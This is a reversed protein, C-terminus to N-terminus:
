ELINQDLEKEADELSILNGSSIDMESSFARKVLEVMQDDGQLQDFLREVQLFRLEDMNEISKIIVTKREKINM